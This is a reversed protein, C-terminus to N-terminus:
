WRRWGGIYGPYGTGAVRMPNASYRATRYKSTAFWYSSGYVTQMYWPQSPSGGAVDGMETSVSVSGQSASSIRGVIPSAPTGTSAPNGNLDRPANLWAIHSTLMNLLTPLAGDAFAPNCTNNACYLAAEDWYAQALQESVAAFEPYRAVWTGYNFEVAGTM